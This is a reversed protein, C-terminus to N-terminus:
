WVSEASTLSDTGAFQINAHGEQHVDERPDVGRGARARPVDDQGLAGLRPRHGGGRPGRGEAEGCTM